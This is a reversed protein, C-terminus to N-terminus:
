KVVHRNRQPSGTVLANYALLFRIFQGSHPKFISNVQRLYANAGNLRKRQGLQEVLNLNFRGKHYQNNGNACHMTIKNPPIPIVEWITPSGVQPCYAFGDKITSVKPVIIINRTISLDISFRKSVILTYLM